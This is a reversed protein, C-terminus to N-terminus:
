KGVTLLAEKARNCVEDINEPSVAITINHIMKGENYQYIVTRIFEDLQEGHVVLVKNKVIKQLEIGLTIERLFETISSPMEHEELSFTIGIFPTQIEM